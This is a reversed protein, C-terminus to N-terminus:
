QVPTDLFKDELRSMLKMEPKLIAETELEAGAKRFCDFNSYGDWFPQRSGSVQPM